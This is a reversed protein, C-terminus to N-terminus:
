AGHADADLDARVAERVDQRETKDEGNSIHIDIDIGPWIKVADTVGNVARRTERRVYNASLGKSPLEALRSEEYNQTKYTLDLVEEPSFDALITHSVSNAYSALRPGGCNNYMVVKLFDSYKCFDAYDQEARYFPSFSNNHWVHWGVAVESRISKALKCIHAYTSQQGD